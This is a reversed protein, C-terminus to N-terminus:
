RSVVAARPGRGLLWGAIASAIKQGGQVSPEIPNAYDAPETCILRLDIVPVSRAFAARTSSPFGASM